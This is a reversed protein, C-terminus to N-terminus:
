SDASHYQCHSLVLPYLYSLLQAPAQAGGGGGVGGGSVGGGGGGGSIGGHVIHFVRNVRGERYMLVNIPIWVRHCNLGEREVRVKSRTLRTWLDCEM